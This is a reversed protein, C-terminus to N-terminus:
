SNCWSSAYQLTGRGRWGKEVAMMTARSGKVGVLPAVAMMGPECKQGVDEGGEGESVMGATQGAPEATYKRPVRQCPPPGLV